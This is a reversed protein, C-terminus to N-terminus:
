AEAEEEIVEEETVGDASINILEFQAKFEPSLDAVILCEAVAHDLMQQAREEARKQTLAAKCDALSSYMPQPEAPAMFDFDDAPQMRPKLEAEPMDDSYNEYYEASVEEDSIELVQNMDQTAFSYDIDAGEADKLPLVEIRSLFDERYFDLEEESLEPVAVRNQPNNSNYVRLAKVICSNTGSPVDPSSFLKDPADPRMPLVTSNNIKIHLM